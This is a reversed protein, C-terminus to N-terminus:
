KAPSFKQVRHNNYETVYVNGSTDVSVGYPTQFQGEKTGKTGWTTIFNGKYDFKQIRNNNSDAVFVNAVGDLCIGIPANFYGPKDGM